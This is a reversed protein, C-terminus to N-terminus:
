LRIGKVRYEWEKNFTKIHEFRKGNNMDETLRMEAKLYMNGFLRDTRENLSGINGQVTCFEDFCIEKGSKLFDIRIYPCPIQLSINKAIELQDKTFGLGKLKTSDKSTDTEKKAYWYWGTELPQGEATWWWDKKEPYRSVEFVAGLEGYFMHFKLDRPPTKAVPDDYILEQVIFDDKGIVGSELESVISEKMEQWSNLRKGETLSLINDFDIVMYVGRAGRGICPKIVINTAPQINKLKVHFTTKPKKIDLLDAFFDGAEKSYTLWREPVPGVQRMRGRRVLNVRFSSAQFIPLRLHFVDQYQEYSYTDLTHAYFLKRLTEIYKQDNSKRRIARRALSFRKLYEENLTDRTAIMESVLGDISGDEISKLVLQSFEKESLKEWEPMNDRRTVPAANVVPPAAITQKKRPSLRRKLSILISRVSRKM